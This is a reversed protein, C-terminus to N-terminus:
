LNSLLPKKGRRKMGFQERLVSIKNEHMLRAIEERSYYTVGKIKTFDILGEARMRKLTSDSIDLLQCVNAAKLFSSDATEARASSSEAIREVAKSLESRFVMVLGEMKQDIMESIRKEIVRDM